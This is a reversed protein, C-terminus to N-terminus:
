AQNYVLDAVKYLYAYDTILMYDSQAKKTAVGEVIERSYVALAGKRVLEDLGKQAKKIEMGAWNAIDEITALITYFSTAGQTKQAFHKCMFVLASAIKIDDDKCSLIRVWKRLDNVRSCFVKLLSFAFSPQGTLLAQFSEKNFEYVEVDTECIATALRPKGNLLAMEGFFRGPGLVEINKEINGVVKVLRVQGSKILYFTDGAEHECIVVQGARFAKTLHELTSLNIAPTKCEVIPQRWEGGMALNCAKILSTVELSLASDTEKNNIRRAIDLAVPYSKADFFCKAVQLMLSLDEKAQACSDFGLLHEIEINMARLEESFFKLLAVLLAGDEMLHKEFEECTFAEVISDEIAVANGDRRSHTLASKLGFYDGKKLSSHMVAKTQIDFISLVVEGEIFRFIKTDKAGAAYIVDGKKYELQESM